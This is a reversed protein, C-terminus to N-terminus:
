GAVATIWWQLEEILRLSDGIDEGAAVTWGDGTKVRLSGRSSAGVM